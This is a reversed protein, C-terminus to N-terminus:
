RRSYCILKHHEENTIGFLEISKIDSLRKMEDPMLNWNDWIRMQESFTPEKHILEIGTRARFMHIPCNMLKPNKFQGKPMPSIYKKM